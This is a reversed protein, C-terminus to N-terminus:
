PQPTVTVDDLYVFGGTSAGSDNYVRTLVRVYHHSAGPTVTTTLEQWSDSNSTYGGYTPAGASTMDANGWEYILRGRADVTNDYFWLGLRVPVGPTVPVWESIFDLNSNNTSGRTLKVSAEGSRFVDLSREVGVDPDATWGMPETGSFNWREFSGNEPGYVTAPGPWAVEGDIPGTLDCYTYTQSGDGSFAVIYHYDGPAPFTVTAWYEDDNGMDKNYIADTCTLTAPDIPGGTIPETRFCVMATIGALQGMESTGQESYVVGYVNTEDGVWTTIDLPWQTICWDISVNAACIDEWPHFGADCEFECAEPESWGGATTYTVIVYDFISTGNAPAQDLCEALMENDCAGDIEAYDLNCDWDCDAPLAWGNADTYTVEVDVVVSTANAPAVDFCPELRVNICQGEVTEDYNADCVWVCPDPDSWGTADSYIIFVEEEISTANAPAVDACTVIQFDTCEGDVLAYDANCSWACEAPTTWGTADTYTIEVLVVDSSANAPAVDQCPVLDTDICAAGDFFYDANCSWLCAEPATWGGATTYTITVTSPVSTANAPTEDACPVVQSDICAGDVLAFDLDCEWACAAPATWGDADTYTIEVPVVVSSANAPAVDVCAVLQSNLCAGDVEAFDADCSWACAEPETWGGDSSYTITVTTVVSTANDPAVDACDVEQTDVCADGVQGFDTDCTWECDAPESWGTAEDYTIAVQVVVSTANDPAVDKCDVLQGSVCQGDAPAYGSDCTWACDAPATWGGATTYTIEVMQEASTANAPAVDACPVLESDICSDDAQAFDVDCSWACAGPDTWGGADTYTVTVQVVESTANAPAVDSCDVQQSNVCAGDVDAFDADCAWACDAPATWGGDDTYTITVQAVTSTANAPAADNCDVQQSNVCAGDVLAFDADCAWACDAPATWGGDDTYTITVQAVTSTANAPAADNCDVQQSNVCAGDVLAFDADCAWACDAADTWGGADTYTITVQAVTSTANAPAADACDVQQSNLCAGDIDAFDADCAWECDAPATWGGADTYTIEVAVVTSTANAPAADNCDVQQSNVCAGDVDAFDADCAWACDAPATWGGADTYTITVSAM